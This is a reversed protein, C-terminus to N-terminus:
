LAELTHTASRLYYDTFHVSDPLDFLVIGVRESRLKEVKDAEIKQEKFQKLEALSGRDSSKFTSTNRYGNRHAPSEKLM